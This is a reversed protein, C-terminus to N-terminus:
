SHLKRASGRVEPLDVKMKLVSGAWQQITYDRPFLYLHNLVLDRLTQYSFVNHELTVALKEIEKKPFREFHDLRISLQIIGNSLSNDRLEAVEDYTPELESLGIAHSVRKLLSYTIERLIEALILEARTLLERETGSFAMKTRLLEAIDKVMVESDRQALDFVASLIRLGLSYSEFALELKTDAKLSGPFNRLIQGMLTMYRIGIILRQEFPLEPSYLIDGCGPDGSPEIQEGREDRQQDYAQQNLDPRGAPLRLTPLPQIIQNIFQLHSDFDFEPLEAFINKANAIVHNILARDRTLFVYFVVISANNQNYVRESLTKLKDFLRAHSSSDDLDALNEQFYKAVFYCYAYGYSFRVGCDDETIIGASICSTRMQGADIRVKYEDYYQDAVDRWEADDLCRQQSSFLHWAFRALFTIKTGIDISKLSVRALRATILAEYVQGYSGLGSNATGAGTDYTQLLTLINVPYSPLLNRGLVTDIVHTSETVRRALSKDDEIFTNGFTHWKRIMQGRLRFGFERIDAIEFSALPAHEHKGSLEEILFIDDVFLIVTAFHAAARELIKARGARSFTVEDWDDILLIRDKAGLGAFRGKSGPGYQEKISEDLAKEFASDPEAGKISKGCLLLCKRDYKTNGELFLMKSLATKGSDSPGAVVVCKVSLLQTSVDKSSINKPLDGSRKLKRSLLRTKLDPYIYIDPLTLDQQQRPHLFGTGPETVQKLFAKTIQLGAVRGSHDFLKEPMAEHLKVYSGESWTFDEHSWTGKHLDIHLIGFDSHGSDPPQYPGSEFHILHSGAFSAIIQGGLSHEHGTFLFDSHDQIARRFSQYAGTNLWNFPHHVISVVVDSDTKESAAQVTTQPFGLSGPEDHKSSLWASNFCRFEVTKGGLEFIRVFFLQRDQSIPDATLKEQFAFFDAQVQLLTKVTEGREDITELTSAIESLLRPRLDGPNHFNCDHNGPIFIVDRPSCTTDIGTDLFLQDFFDEAVAYEASSGTNAVDGTVVFILREDPSRAFAITNALNKCRKFGVDSRSKFHIDSLHVIAIKM